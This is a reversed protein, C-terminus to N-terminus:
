GYNDCLVYYFKKSPVQIVVLMGRPNEQMHVLVKDPLGKLDTLNEYPFNYVRSDTPQGLLERNKWLYSNFTDMDGEREDHGSEKNNEVKENTNEYM